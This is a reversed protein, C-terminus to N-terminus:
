RLSGRGSACAMCARGRLRPLVRRPRRLGHVAADARAIATRQQTDSPTCARSLRSDAQGRKAAIPSRGSRSASRACASSLPYPWLPEGLTLDCRRYTQNPLLGSLLLRRLSSSEGGSLRSIQTVDRDAPALVLDCRVSLAPAGDPTPQDATFRRVLSPKVAFVADSDLYDSDADFIHTTLTRHGDARVIMHIHAPRWPHRGTARLMQGVPGDDPIPYPVPRVAVFGFCGDSRTAFRGRLHDEPADPRQVAYLRDDGNQWVDLEAGAIPEGDTGLRPWPGLGARRRRGGRRDVRRLRAPPAPSTSRGSCPRSPRPLPGPAARRRTRRRATTTAARRARARRRADLARARRVVARVGPSARRHDRRQPDAGRDGAGVGRETLGVETAFAHLHGVLAPMLERLREDPCGEFSRLVHETIQQPTTARPDSM